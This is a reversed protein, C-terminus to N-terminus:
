ILFIKPVILLLVFLEGFVKWDAAYLETILTFNLLCM